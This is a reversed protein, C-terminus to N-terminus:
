TTALNYHASWLAAFEPCTALLEDKTGEAVKRGEEMYVIKDAHEITSLRHAIILQTMSGHLGAIAQKIRQESIGDLASTAEDLVLIPARKFLARAIAIRQQQGGSFNQGADAIATQYGEPLKEIFEDAHARKAAMRVEDLSASEGFTINQEITELFLFPKQPVFSIQSRISAQTYSKLARGDILIEGEQIDYLRPLLQAVTSKGAGTPGVLAVTQGKAITFSLDRLVWEDGYKFSINKFEILEKFSTLPNAGPLDKIEPEINMIEFMREAAVVGKQIIASQDGMKKIPEYLLVLMGCYPIIETLSMHFYNVGTIVIFAVTSTAIAHLVPRTLNSYFASLGELLSMLRNEATYKKLTLGELTFLKVTQIGRLFDLLVVSFREQNVQIKRAVAKIKQALVMAPFLILPGLVFVCLSLKWSLYICIVLSSLINFPGQLCNSILANVSGSIQSSDNMVRSSIAAINYRQFFSLSLTQIHEFYQQRLNRSFRIAVLQSLYNSLFYWFGKFLAVGVLVFVLASLNTTLDFRKYVERKITQLPNFSGSKLRYNAADAKTIYGKHDKDIESWKQEIDKLAVVPSGAAKNSQETQFVTFLDPGTDAMLGVAFMELQNAITLGFLAITTFILLALNKKGRM